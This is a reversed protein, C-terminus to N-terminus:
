VRMGANLLIMYNAITWRPVSMLEFAANPGHSGQSKLIKPLASADLIGIVCQKYLLGSRNKRLASSRPQMTCVINIIARFLAALAIFQAVYFAM